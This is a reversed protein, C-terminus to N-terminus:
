RVLLLGYYNTACDRDRAVEIPLGANRATRYVDIGCAEMSPRAEKHHKCPYTLDCTDCLSCPGAGLAFAKHYGMFFAEQELTAVIKQMQRWDKPLHLLIATDYDDLAKRTTAPPPSHPPCKLSQGYGDCGFQCKLRVWEGTFVQNTFILKAGKVGLELAQRALEEPTKRAKAKAAEQGAAETKRASM